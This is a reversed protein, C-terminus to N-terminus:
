LDSCLKQLSAALVPLNRWRLLITETSITDADKVQQSIPGSRHQFDGDEDDAQQNDEKDEEQRTLRRKAKKGQGKSRPPLHREIDQIDQLYEEEDMLDEEDREEVTPSHPRFNDKKYQRKTEKTRETKSFDSGDTGSEEIEEENEDGQHQTIADGSAEQEFPSSGRNFAGDDKDHVPDPDPSLTPLRLDMQWEALRAIFLPDKVGKLADGRLTISNPTGPKSITQEAQDRCGSHRLLPLMPPTRETGEHLNRHGYRRLPTRPEASDAHADQRPSPTFAAREPPAPRPPERIPTPTSSPSPSVPTQDQPVAQAPLVPLPM